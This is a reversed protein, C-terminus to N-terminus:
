STRGSEATMGAAPELIRHGPRAEGSRIKEQLRTVAYLLADPNPPCGPVYVDVPIFEDIGQVVHYARYFGGTCACAGMSIVYKPEAMQEYIRVMVAAAAPGAPGALFRRPDHDTTAAGAVTNPIDHLKLDLFLPARAVLPAVAAPGGACFLELGCKLVGVQPALADVIQHPGVGLFQLIVGLAIGHALALEDRDIGIRARQLQRDRRSQLDPAVLAVGHEAAEGHAAVLQVGIPLGDATLGNPIAIAPYGSLDFPGSFRILSGMRDGGGATPEVAPATVGGM